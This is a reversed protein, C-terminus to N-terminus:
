LSFRIVYIICFIDKEVKSVIAVLCSNKSRVNVRNM